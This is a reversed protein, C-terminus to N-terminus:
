YRPPSDVGVGSQCQYGAEELRRIRGVQRTFVNIFWIPHGYMTDMVGVARQDAWELIEPYLQNEFGPHCVIDVEWFPSQLVAWAVLQIEANFWLCSNELEDLAWSSLRYPLDTVHLNDSPFRIALDIMQSKDGDGSFSRGHINM